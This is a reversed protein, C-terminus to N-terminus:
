LANRTRYTFHPNRRYRPSRSVRYATEGKAKPIARLYLIITRALIYLHHSDHTQTPQIHSVIHQM